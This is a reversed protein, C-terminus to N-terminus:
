VSKLFEKFLLEADRGPTKSLEVDLKKGKAADWSLACVVRYGFPNKGLYTRAYWVIWPWDYAAPRAVFIAQHSMFPACWGAFERIVDGAPKGTKQARAHAEPDSGVDPGIPRLTATYRSIIGHKVSGVVAALDTMSHTGVVPGCTVLDVM